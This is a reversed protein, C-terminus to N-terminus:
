IRGDERQSAALAIKSNELREFHIKSTLHISWHQQNVLHDVLDAKRGVRTMLLVDNKRQSVVFYTVSLYSRM